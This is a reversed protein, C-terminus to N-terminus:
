TRVYVFAQETRSMTFAPSLDNSTANTVLHDGPRVGGSVLETWNEDAMGARVEIPILQRGDWQWVYGVRGDREALGSLTTGAARLQELAAASLLEMRPRFTLANNPIRVVHERQLSSLTIVVTRGPALSEARNEVEIIAQYTVVGSGSPATGSGGAPAVSSPVWRPPLHSRRGQHLRRARPQPRALRPQPQRRRTAPPM